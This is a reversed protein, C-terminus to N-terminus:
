NTPVAVIRPSLGTPCAVTVTGTCISGEICGMANSCSSPPTCSTAPGCWYAGPDEALVSDVGQKTPGSMNGNEFPIVDGVGYETGNCSEIASRYSSAGKGGIGTAQFWGGTNDGAGVKLTVDTGYDAAVTYAHGAADVDLVAWPM